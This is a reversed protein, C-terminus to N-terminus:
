ARGEHIRFGSLGPDSLMRAVHDENRMFEAFTIGANNCYTEVVVFPFSALHWHNDPGRSHTAGAARRQKVDELIPEVDQTRQVAATNEDLLVHRTEISM